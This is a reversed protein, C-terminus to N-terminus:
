LSRGQQQAVQQAAVGVGPTPTCQGLEIEGEEIVLQDGADFEAIGSNPLAAAADQAAGENDYDLAMLLQTDLRQASAAHIAQVMAPDDLALQESLTAVVHQVAAEHRGALEPNASYQRQIESLMEATIPYASQGHALQVGEIHAGDLVAEILTEINIRTGPEFIAGALNAGEFNATTLDVGEGGLRSNRLDAKAFNANAMQAGTLDCGQAVIGIATVNNLEANRMTAGTLQTDPGFTAGNFKANDFCARNIVEGM